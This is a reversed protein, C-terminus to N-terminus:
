KKEMWKKMKEKSGWCMRPVEWYMFGVIEFMKEINIDDARIFAETLDNCIVAQLFNGPLVHEEVYRKMGGRIHQPLKTYDIM